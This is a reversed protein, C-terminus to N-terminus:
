DEKDDTVKSSARVKRTKVGKKVSKINVKKTKTEKTKEGLVKRKTTMIPGQKNRDVKGVRRRKPKVVKDDEDLSFTRRNSSTEENIKVDNHIIELEDELISRTLSIPKPKSVITEDDEDFSEIDGYQEDVYDDDYDEEYDDDHDEEEIDLSISNSKRVIVFILSIILIIVIIILISNSIIKEMFSELSEEEDIILEEFNITVTGESKWWIQGEFVTDQIQHSVLIPHNEVLHTISADSHTVQEKISIDFPYETNPIIDFTIRFMLKIGNPDFTGAFVLGDTVFCDISGNEVQGISFEISNEWSSIFDASDINQCIANEFLKAENYSIQQDSISARRTLNRIKSSEYLGFTFIDDIILSDGDIKLNVNRINSSDPSRQCETVEDPCNFDWEDLFSDGDDDNDLNDPIEDGDLDSGLQGYGYRLQPRAYNSIHATDTSTYIDGIVGNSKFYIDFDIAQHIFYTSSIENFTSGDIEIIRPATGSELVYLKNQSNSWQMGASNSIKKEHLLTGSKSWISINGEESVATVRQDQFNFGCGTIQGNLKFSNGTFTGDYNWLKINGEFDGSILQQGDNSFAICTVDTQHQNSYERVIDMTTVDILNIGNQFNSVAMFNGNPTWDINSRRNNVREKEGMMEMNEMDFVMVSDIRESLGSITIGLKTGDPSFKLDYISRQLELNNIISLDDSDHFIITSSYSSAIITNNSNVAVYKSSDSSDDNSTVGNYVLPSSASAALCFLNGVICLTFFIAISKRM